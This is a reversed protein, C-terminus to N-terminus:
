VNEDGVGFVDISDMKSVKKMNINGMLHNKQMVNDIKISIGKRANGPLRIVPEVSLTGTIEWVNIKM